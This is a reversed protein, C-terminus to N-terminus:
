VTSPPAGNTKRINLCDHIYKGLAKCVTKDENTLLFIFWQTNDYANTNFHATDLISLLTHRQATYTPCKMIFHIEDEKENLPCTNCKRNEPDHVTGRLAEINLSHSSLRLQTLARKDINELYPELQFNQKLIKYTRLKNGGKNQDKNINRNLERHWFDEYKNRM